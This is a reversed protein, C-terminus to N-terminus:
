TIWNTRNLKHAPNNQAFKFYRTFIKVFFFQSKNYKHVIGLSFHQRKSIRCFSGMQPKPKQMKRMLYSETERFGVFASVFFPWMSFCYTTLEPRWINKGFYVTGLLNSYIYLRYITMKQELSRMRYNFMFVCWCHTM